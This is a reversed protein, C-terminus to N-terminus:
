NIEYLVPLCDHRGPIGAHFMAMTGTIAWHMLHHPNRVRVIALFHTALSRMREKYSLKARNAPQHSRKSFFLSVLVAYHKPFSVKIDEVISDAVKDSGLLRGLGQFPNSYHRIWAEKYKQDTRQAFAALSGSDLELELDAEFDDAHDPSSEVSATKSIQIRLDRVEKKLVENALRLEQIPDGKIDDHLSRIDDAYLHFANRSSLSIPECEDGHHMQVFAQVSIVEKWKLLLTDGPYDVLNLEIGAGQRIHNKMDSSSVGDYLYDDRHPYSAVVCHLEIYTAKNRIIGHRENMISLLTQLQSDATVGLLEADFFSKVHRLLRFRLDARSRALSEDERRVNCPIILMFSDGNQLSAVEHLRLRRWGVFDTTHQHYEQRSQASKASTGSGKYVLISSPASRSPQPASKASSKLRKMKVGRRPTRRSLDMTRPIAGRGGKKKRISPTSGFAQVISAGVQIRISQITSENTKKKEARSQKKASVAASAPATGASRILKVFADMKERNASCVPHVRGHEEIQECSRRSEKKDVRSAKQHATGHSDRTPRRGGPRALPSKVQKSILGAGGRRDPPTRGHRESGESSLKSLRILLYRTGLNAYTPPSILRLPRLLLPEDSPGDSAESAESTPWSARGGARDCYMGPPTPSMAGSSRTLNM